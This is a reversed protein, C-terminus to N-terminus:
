QQIACCDMMMQLEKIALQDVLLAVEILSVLLSGSMNSYLRICTLFMPM